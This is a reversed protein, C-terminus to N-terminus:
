IIFHVERLRALNSGKEGYVSDFVESPVVVEVKQKSGENGVNSCFGKFNDLLLFCCIPFYFWSLFCLLFCKFKQSM